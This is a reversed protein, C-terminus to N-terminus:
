SEGDAESVGGERLPAQLSPRKLRGRLPLHCGAPSVSPTKLPGRIANRHIVNFIDGENKIRKNEVDDSDKQKKMKEQEEAETAERKKTGKGHKIADIIWTAKDTKWNNPVGKQIAWIINEQLYNFDYECFNDAMLGYIEHRALLNRKKQEESELLNVAVDGSKTM